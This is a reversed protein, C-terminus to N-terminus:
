GLMTAPSCCTVLLTVVHGMPRRCAETQSQNNTSTIDSSKM